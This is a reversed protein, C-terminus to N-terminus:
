PSKGNFLWSCPPSNLIIGVQPQAQLHGENYINV